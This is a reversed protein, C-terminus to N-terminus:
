WMDGSIYLEAVNWVQDWNGDRVEDMMNRHGGLAPMNTHLLINANFDGVGNDALYNIVAQLNNERKAETIQKKM